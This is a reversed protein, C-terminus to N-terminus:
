QCGIDYLLGVTMQPPIHQFLKNILALAYHRRKGAHTMNVIWLVRDHRCLLAMLRTDSFYQTSAKERKEDAAKFSEGCGDLVSTPVRMGHEVTDEADDQRSGQSPRQSHRAAVYEEM